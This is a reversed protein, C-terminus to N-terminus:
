SLGCPRADRAGSRWFQQKVIEARTNRPEKRRALGCCNSLPWSASLRAQWVLLDGVHHCSMWLGKKSDWAGLRVDSGSVVLNEGWRTPFAVRFRITCRKM